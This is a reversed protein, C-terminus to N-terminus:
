DGSRDLRLFRYTEAKFTSVAVTWLRAGRRLRKGGDTADVFTPATVPSARNFGRLARSRLSVPSALAGPEPMTRLRRTAGALLRGPGQGLGAADRALLRALLHRRELLLVLLRDVLGLLGGGFSRVSGGRRDRDAPQDGEVREDQSCDAPQNLPREPTTYGTNVSPTIGGAEIIRRTFGDPAILTKSTM